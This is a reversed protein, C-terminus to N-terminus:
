RSDAQLIQAARRLYNVSSLLTVILTAWIMVDRLLTAWKNYGASFQPSQREAYGLFYLYAVIVLITTSQLSMKIKGWNDAGFALGRSEALGRISTVLLERGLIIVVMAPTVGTITHAVFNTHGSGLESSIESPIIFNKGAFFIFSGLVLIKDVFPDVVRGFGSEVKWLRALYGDIFDTIIAVLGVFFALSLLTSHGRGEYQYWSLLTFFAAALILRATTILNPIQRYTM